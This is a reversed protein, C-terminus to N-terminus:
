ARWSLGTTAEFPLPDHRDFGEKDARPLRNPAVILDQGFNEDGIRRWPKAGGIRPEAKAFGIRNGHGPTAAPRMNRSSPLTPSARIQREATADVGFSTAAASLRSTPLTKSSAARSRAAAAAM